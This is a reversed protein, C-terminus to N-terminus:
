SKPKRPEPPDVPHMPIIICPDPVFECGDTSLHEVKKRLEEDFVHFTVPPLIQSDEDM